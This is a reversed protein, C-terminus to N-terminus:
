THKLSVTSHLHKSHISDVPEIIADCKILWLSEFAKLQPRSSSKVKCHVKGQLWRNPTWQCVKCVQVANPNEEPDRGLRLQRTGWAVGWSKRIQPMGSVVVFPKTTQICAYAPPPALAPLCLFHLKLLRKKKKKLYFFNKRYSRFRLYSCHAAQFHLIKRFLMGFAFIVQFVECFAPSLPSQRFAKRMVNNTNSTLNSTQHKIPWQEHHWWKTWSFVFLGEQLTPPYKHWPHIMYRVLFGFLPPLIWLTFYLM